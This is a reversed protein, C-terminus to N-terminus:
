AWEAFTSLFLSNCFYSYTYISDREEILTVPIQVEESFKLMSVSIPGNSLSHMLLITKFIIM